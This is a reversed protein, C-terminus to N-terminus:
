NRECATFNRSLKGERSMVFDVGQFKGKGKQVKVKEFTGKTSPRVPVAQSGEFDSVFYLYGAKGQIKVYRM